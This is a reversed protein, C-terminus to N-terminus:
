RDHVKPSCMRCQGHDSKALQHFRLAFTDEDWFAVMPCSNGMWDQFYRYPTEWFFVHSAVSTLKSIREEKSDGCDLVLTHWDRGAVCINEVRKVTVKDGHKSPGMAIGTYNFDHDLRGTYQGLWESTVDGDTISLHFSYKLIRQTEALSYSRGLIEVIEAAMEHAVGLPLRFHQFTCWGRETFNCGDQFTKETGSSM